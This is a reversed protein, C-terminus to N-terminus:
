LARDAFQKCEIFVSNVFELSITKSLIEDASMTGLKQSQLAMCKMVGRYITEAPTPVSPWQKRMARAFPSIIGHVDECITELWEDPVEWPDCKSYLRHHVHLTQDRIGTVSCTWDDRQLIELRRKQWRPNKLKEAYTM